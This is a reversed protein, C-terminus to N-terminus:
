SEQGRRAAIAQRRQANLEEVTLRIETEEGVPGEGETPQVLDWTTTNRTFFGPEDMNQVVGAQMPVAMGVVPQTVQVSPEPDRVITRSSSLMSRLFALEQDKAACVACPKRGFIM